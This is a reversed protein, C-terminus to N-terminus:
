PQRYFQRSPYAPDVWTSRDNLISDITEFEDTQNAQAKGSPTTSCSCLAILAIVLLSFQLMHKMTKKTHDEQRTAQRQSSASVAPM